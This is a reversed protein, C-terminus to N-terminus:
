RSEIGPGELGYRPAIGVSSGRSGELNRIALQKVFWLSFVFVIYRRLYCFYTFTEQYTAVISINSLGVRLTSRLSIDITSYCLIYKTYSYFSTHLVDQPFMHLTKFCYKQINYFLLTTNTSINGKAKPRIVGSLKHLSPVSYVQAIIHLIAQFEVVM